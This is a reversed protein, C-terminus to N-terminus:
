DDTSTRAGILHHKMDEFLEKVTMPKRGTLKEFDDTFVAMQNKRIARGFTVMGDSCFPFNSATQAWMEETTRPVGISDFFKYQEEDSIEVYKVNHGTVENAINIYEAITLLEPGNVNVVRNEWDSMAACAAAYACDDRSIYAMKGDGMNNALINNTNEYANIYNSVMAEAYQSDRLFLYKIPQEKVYAEFWVHDNVEYTDINKEGAGVISTYVIKKVGAKVAADLARKQVARRKSGVFPMSILIMTDAGSFDKVLGEEDNFDAVRLEVGLGEYNKLGEKTPASFILDEHPWKELLTKAAKSGFNGDVGNLLIKKM